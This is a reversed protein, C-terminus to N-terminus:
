SISKLVILNYCLHIFLALTFFIFSATSLKKVKVYRGIALVILLSSVTHILTSYLFRYDMVMENNFVLLGFEFLSFSLGFFIASIFSLLAIKNKSLFFLNTLFFLFLLKTFEEIVVSLSLIFINAPSDLFTFITFFVLSIFGALMGLASSIILKLLIKL